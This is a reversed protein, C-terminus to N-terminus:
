SFKRTYENPFFQGTKNSLMMRHVDSAFIDRDLLHMAEPSLLGKANQPSTILPVARNKKIQKLLPRGADSFGLIRLYPVLDKADLGCAANPLVM